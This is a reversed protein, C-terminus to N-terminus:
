KLYDFYLGILSLVNVKSNGDRGVPSSCDSMFVNAMRTLIKLKRIKVYYSNEIFIDINFM